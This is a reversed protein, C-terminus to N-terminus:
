NSLSGCSDNITILGSKNIGVCKITTIGSASPFGLVIQISDMSNAVGSVDYIATDPNPPVFEASVKQVQVALDTGGYNKFKKIIIGNEFAITQYPSDGPNYYRWGSDPLGAIANTIDAYLVYSGGSGLDMYLGYGFALCKGNRCVGGNGCNPDTTCSANSAATNSLAMEQARRLDQSLQYAARKLSLQNRMADFDSYGVGAMIGIIVVIALVEFLTFGSEFNKTFNKKM